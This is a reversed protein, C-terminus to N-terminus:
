SCLDIEGDEFLQKLKLATQTEQEEVFWKVAVSADTVYRQGQKREM